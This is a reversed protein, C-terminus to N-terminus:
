PHGRSQWSIRCDSTTNANGNCVVVFLMSMPRGEGVSWGHHMLVRGGSKDIVRISVGHITVVKDRAFASVAVRVPEM